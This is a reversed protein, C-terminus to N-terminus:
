SKRRGRQRFATRTSGTIAGDDDHTPLSAVCCGASRAARRTAPKLSLAAHEARGRWGVGFLSARQGLVAAARTSRVGKRLVGSSLTIKAM